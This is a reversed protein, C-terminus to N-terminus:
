TTLIENGGYPELLNKQIRIMRRNRKSLIIGEKGIESRKGPYVGRMNQHMKQMTSRFHWKVRGSPYFIANPLVVNYFRKHFQIAGWLSKM